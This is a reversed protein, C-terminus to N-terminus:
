WSQEPVSEWYQTSDDTGISLTTLHTQWSTKGSLIKSELFGTTELGEMIRYRIFRVFSIFLFFNEFGLAAKTSPNKDFLIRYRASSMASFNLLTKPLQPGKADM